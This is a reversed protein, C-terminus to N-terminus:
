RIGINDARGGVRSIAFHARQLGLVSCDRCNPTGSPSGPALREPHGHECWWKCAIRGPIRNTGTRLIVVRAATEVRRGPKGGARSQRLGKAM